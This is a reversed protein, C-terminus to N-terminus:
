SEKGGFARLLEEAAVSPLMRGSSVESELEARLEAVGSHARFRTLLGEEVSRWMWSLLQQRRKKALLGKMELRHRHELVGNWLEELGREELASCTLVRPVSDKSAGRLLRLASTWARQEVAAHQTNPGDAKNIAVLDALEMIGRKIGQLEDGGGVLMVLLFCDVMEAVVTESQGVGVTEVFVVDFGAAECLLMLERTRSAVGGLSGASPSPRIFAREDAALRDMRTKDGLISGGSLGSSPDVALVAVRQGRTTLRSGLADILMSKGAGPVGTIGVRIAGGARPALIELLERARERHRPSASEVLTMARGLLARDGALVGRALELPPLERRRGPPEPCEDRM